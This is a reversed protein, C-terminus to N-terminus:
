QTDTLEGGPEASNSKAQDVTKRTVVKRGRKKVRARLGDKSKAHLAEQIGPMSKMTEILQHQCEIQYKLDSVQKTLEKILEQDSKGM